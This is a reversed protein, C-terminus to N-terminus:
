KSAARAGREPDYNNVQNYEERYGNDVTAINIAGAVGTAGLLGGVLESGKQVLIATGPSGSDALASAAIAGVNTVLLGGAIGSGAAVTAALGRRGGYRDIERRARADEKDFKQNERYLNAQRRDERKERRAERKETRRASRAALEEDSRKVGWKMGKVGYHALEADTM